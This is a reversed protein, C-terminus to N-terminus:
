EADIWTIRKVVKWVTVRAVGFEKALAGTGNKRCHKKYRRRIESAQFETLKSIGNEEGKSQRGRNVKDKMNDYQTGVELHSPNVCKTNDCKHRIIKGSIESMSLNNAKAFAVRHAQHTKGEFRMQGYGKPTIFKGFIICNNDM